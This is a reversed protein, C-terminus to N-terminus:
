LKRNQIKWLFWFMNLKKQSSNTIVKIISPFCTYITEDQKKEIFAPQIGVINQKRTNRCAIEVKICDLNSILMLQCITLYKSESCLHIQLELIVEAAEVTSGIAIWFHCRTKKEMLWVSSRLSFSENWIPNISSCNFWFCFTRCATILKARSLLMTSYYWTTVVVPHEMPIQLKQVAM